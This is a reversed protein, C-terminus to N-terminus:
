NRDDDAPEKVLREFIERTRAPDFKAIRNLAQSIDIASQMRTFHENPSGLSTPTPDKRNTRLWLLLDQEFETLVRNSSFVADITPQQESETSLLQSNASNLSYDTREGAWVLQRSADYDM